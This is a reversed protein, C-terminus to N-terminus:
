RLDRGARHRRSPHTGLRQGERPLVVPQRAWLCFARLPRGGCAGGVDDRVPRVTGDPRLSALQLERAAGIKQLEDTTWAAM